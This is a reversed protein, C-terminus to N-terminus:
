TTGPVLQQKVHDGFRADVDDADRMLVHIDNSVEVVLSPGASLNGWRL